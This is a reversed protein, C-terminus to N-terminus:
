ECARYVRTLPAESATVAVSARSRCADLKFAGPNRQPYTNMTDKLITAVQGQLLHLSRLRCRQYNAMRAVVNNCWQDTGFLQCM